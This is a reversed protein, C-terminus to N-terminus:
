QEFIDIKSNSDLTVYAIKRDSLKSRKRSFRSFKEKGLRNTTRVGKVKVTYINEVAKKVLTRDAKLDVEFTVVKNDKYLQLTKETILPKKLVIM